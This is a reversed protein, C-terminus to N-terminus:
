IKIRKLEYDIKLIAYNDFNIEQYDYWREVDMENGQEDINCWELWKLKVQIENKDTVLAEHFLYIDEIIDGIELSNFFQIRNNIKNKCEIECQEINERTESIYGCLECKYCTIIKM